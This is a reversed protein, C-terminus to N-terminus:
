SIEISFQTQAPIQSLTIINEKLSYELDNNIKIDNTVANHLELEICDIDIETIFTYIIKENKKYDKLILANLQNKYEVFEQPSGCYGNKEKVWRIISFYIDALDYDDSFAINHWCISSLGQFYRLTNLTDVCKKFIVEKPEMLFLTFTTDMMIMPIELVPIARERLHSYLFHPRCSGNRFGNLDNFGMSTSYEFGIKNYAEWTDPNTFSLYHQRGGMIKQCTYKELTNKEDQIYSIDLYSSIAPHLGFETKSSLDRISYQLKDFKRIDYSPNFEGFKVNSKFKDTSEQVFINFSSKVGHQQEKEVISNIQYYDSRKFLIKTFKWFSNFHKRNRNEIFNLISKLIFFGRLVRVFISKKIHDVDHTLCLGFEKRNPYLYRSIYINGNSAAISDVAKQLVTLFFDAVPNTFYAIDKGCKYAYAFAMSNSGANKEYEFKYSLHEFINTFIDFNISSTNGLHNIDKLSNSNEKLTSRMIPINVKAINDTLDYLMADAKFTKFDNIDYDNNSYHVLLINYSEPSKNDLRYYITVDAEKDPIKDYNYRILM